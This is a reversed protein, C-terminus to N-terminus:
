FRHYFHVHPGHHHYARYYYPRPYVYVPAPYERVIVTEPPPAPLAPVVVPAAGTLPARQMANIVAESVGQQHLSIIDHTELRSRVGNNLIHNIVVSESVGSRCMAVVESASVTAQRQANIQQQQQWIQEQYRQERAIQKDRSNGILGGTIAGVAGGILAGEPTEDNQHGIIGGAIAGAVGGLAVGEATHQAGATSTWTPYVLGAIVLAAGFQRRM